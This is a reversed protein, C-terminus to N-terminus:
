RRPRLIGSKLREMREELKTIDSKRERNMDKMEHLLARSVENLKNEVDFIKGALERYGLEHRKEIEARKNDLKLLRVEHRDKLQRTFINNNELWRSIFLMDRNIRGQEDQLRKDSAEEGLKEAGIAIVIFAILVELLSLAGLAAGIILVAGIVIFLMWFLKNWRHWSLLEWGM